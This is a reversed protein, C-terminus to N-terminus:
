NEAKNGNVGLRWGLEMDVVRDGRGRRVRSALARRGGGKSLGGPVEGRERARVRWIGEHHYGELEASRQSKRGGDDFFRGSDM